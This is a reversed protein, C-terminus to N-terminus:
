FELNVGFIVSKATPFNGMDFGLANSGSTATEPDLGFYSSFTFFNDLMAFIRLNSIAIKKTLSQPLTYGLQITKIKFYSGNFVNLSSSYAESSWYNAAPFKATAEDGAKKWSNNWYYAYTNCSPRDVRFATPYINAGAVGNGFISLDFGKWALNITLGYTMDPIGKGLYVRDTEDPSITTGIKNGNGDFDTYIVRGENNIGEAQYGNMYWLPMGEECYTTLATGQVTRGSLRGVLPDLYTMKNKLWAANASIDYSFDGIQDRWGIELEFGRNNVAGANVTSQAKPGGEYFSPVGVEMAPNVNVLLGDTDKNYWDLGITLRNNFMRLDLGLDLQRSTEWRLDPNALGSPLSGYSQKSSDVDYQYWVRNLLIDTSYPYNNLVNINGNVGWSARLKLFSVLNRDVNDRFFPENSITWGASVSPFYGWKKDLPLKSSDFADARFNAQISYRNDFTYGLRAFYSLSASRGPSNTITKSTTDSDKLYSLYQFNKEYGKLIDPGTAQGYVNDSNNEIYSMGAMASVEHKGFTRNYNAFNEWQYYYSTNASANLTYNDAKITATSYYPETYNHSTSQAIRYGFRSTFVFGKFPMFNLYAVGRVSIGGSQSETADRQVFPHGSQTEGILPVTWYLGTEPDTLIKKGSALANKLGASLRSEDGRAPFLPSSTIASLLASGNDNAESVSKTGWKEISNNVGVTLWDKIKYDANVQFTLRDYVDKDGRFIGNNHVNNISVFFNGRDNGGQFGVTHRNSWTPVFIESSWDVDTVGDYYTDLDSQKLYGQAKGFEIYQAANMIDLKKSLTSLQFQGNYFVKGQGKKGSKTTILVVGNGAEAGYIAASAADKLVEMSEIMEPDLYQINDVKLGDVILLPGISGSNSSYGRVRIDAAKGPAGSAQIVQVGAAKGQLAAAADSTSRNKLDDERVSAVSGTLDSKKQVGYGIVVTEELMEADDQLVVTMGNAASVRKAVYGICSIELTTGPAVRIEFKGDLDTTVGNTTGPVMVAAGIVPQNGSDVVTGRIAPNQALASSTGLLSAAIIMVITAAKAFLQKTMSNIINQNFLTAPGMHGVM